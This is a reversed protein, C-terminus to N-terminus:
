DGAQSRDGASIHTYESTSLNHKELGFRDRYCCTSNPPHREEGMKSRIQGLVFGYYGGTGQRRLAM